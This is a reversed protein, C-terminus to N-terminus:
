NGRRAVIEVRRNQQRGEATQNTAAPDAEGVAHVTIRDASINGNQTLWNRVAEAREEALQENYNKSAKSDTYGYIRIQGDNYRQSLSQAVQKLKPAAEARIEKSDTGFLITEDVSYIAYEDNGRVTVDRDTIEQYTAVPANRDIDDWDADTATRNDTDMAGTTGGTTAGATTAATTATTTDTDMDRDVDNDDCGRLLFIIALLALLALVLWIWIPRNKKPEVNLEAM